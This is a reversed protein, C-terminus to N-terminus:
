QGLRSGMQTRPPRWPCRKAEQVNRGSHAEGGYSCHREARRPKRHSPKASAKVGSAAWSPNDVADHAMSGRPTWAFGTGAQAQRTPREDQRRCGDSSSENKAHANKIARGSGATSNFNVVPNRDSGVASHCDTDRLHLSPANGLLIQCMRPRTMPGPLQGGPRHLKAVNFGSAM